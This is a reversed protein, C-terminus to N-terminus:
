RIEGPAAPQAPRAGPGNGAPLKGVAGQGMGALLRGLAALARHHLQNVANANKGILRATRANDYGLVYKSVVVERQEPTLQDLAARVEARDDARELRQVPPPDAATLRDAHDDIRTAAHRYRRRLHDALKNRAIQLLWGLLGGEDTARLGPLSGLAAVFVEQTVEEVEDVRDLRASLYRYVPTVTLRYLEAFAERDHEKARRV